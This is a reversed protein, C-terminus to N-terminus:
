LSEEVQIYGTLLKQKDGNSDTMIVDYVYRGPDIDATQTDTLTVSFTGQAADVINTTMTTVTAGKYNPAMKASFTYSTIDQVVDDEKIQFSRKFDTGQHLTLSYNAAM